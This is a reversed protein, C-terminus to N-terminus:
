MSKDIFRRYLDLLVIVLIFLPIAGGMLIYLSQIWFENKDVTQLFIESNLPNDIPWQSLAFVGSANHYPQIIFKVTFVIEGCCNYFTLNTVKSEGPYVNFSYIEENRSLLVQVPSQSQSDSIIGLLFPATSNILQSFNITHIPHTANIEFTGTSIQNQDPYSTGSITAPVFSLFQLSLVVLFFALRTKRFLHLQLTM